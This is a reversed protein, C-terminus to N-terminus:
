FRLVVGTEFSHSRYSSKGTESEIDGTALWRYGLRFDMGEFLPVMIGATAQWAFTLDDITGDDSDLEHKALGVGGGLYPNVVDGDFVYTGSLMYSLTALKASPLDVAAVRGLNAATAGFVRELEATRYGIEIDGRFGTDSGYGLAALGGFGMNWGIDGSFESFADTGKLETDATVVGLASFSQYLQRDGRHDDGLATGPGAVALAVM